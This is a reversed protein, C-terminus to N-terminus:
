LNSDKIAWWLPSASTFADAKAKHLTNDATRVKEYAAMVAPYGQM